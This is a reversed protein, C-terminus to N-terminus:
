CSRLDCVEILVVRIGIGNQTFALLRIFASGEVYSMVLLFLHGMLEVRM